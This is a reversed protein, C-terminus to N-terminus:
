TDGEEGDGGFFAERARSGAFLVVGIPLLIFGVLLIKGGSGPALWELWRALAWIGALVVAMIILGVGTWGWTRPLM